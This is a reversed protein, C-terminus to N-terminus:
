PAGRRKGTVSDDNWREAKSRRLQWVQLGLPLPRNSLTTRSLFRSINPSLIECLALSVSSIPKRPKRRALIMTLYLRATTTSEDDVPKTIDTIDLTASASQESPTAETKAKLTHGPEVFSVVPEKPGKVM